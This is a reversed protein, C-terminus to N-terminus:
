ENSFRVQDGVQTRTATITGVPVELIYASQGVFQGVRNPVMAEDIKIVSLKKDLYIVDISFGMFFTHIIKENKLLLGQGPQLPPSGLLWKLRSFFNDALKGQDVLISDKTENKIIM